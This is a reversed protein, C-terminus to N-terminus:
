GLRSVLAGGYVDMHLPSLPFCLPSMEGRRREELARGHSERDLGEDGRGGEELPGAHGQVGHRGGM